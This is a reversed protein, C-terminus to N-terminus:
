VNKKELLKKASAQPKQRQAAGTMTWARELECTSYGATKLIEQFQKKRKLSLSM